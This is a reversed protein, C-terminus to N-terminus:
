HIHIDSIIASSQSSLGDDDDEHTPQQCHRWLQGNLIYKNILSVVVGAAIGIMFETMTQLHHPTKQHKDLTDNDM